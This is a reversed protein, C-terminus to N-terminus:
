LTYWQLWRAHVDVPQASAMKSYVHDEDAWRACKQRAQKETQELIQEARSMCMSATQTTSRSSWILRLFDLAKTIQVRHRPECGTGRYRKGGRGGHVAYTRNMKKNLECLCGEVAMLNLPLWEELFNQDNQVHDSAPCPFDGFLSRWESRPVGSAILMDRQEKQLLHVCQVNSLGGRDKFVWGLGGQAGTTTSGGVHVFKSENFLDPYAYGLDLCVQYVSFTCRQGAADALVQGIANFTHSSSRRKMLDTMLGQMQPALRAFLRVYQPTKRHGDQEQALHRLPHVTYASRGLKGLAAQASEVRKEFDREDFCHASFPRFPGAASHYNQDEDRCIHAM